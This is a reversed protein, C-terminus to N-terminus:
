KESLHEMLLDIKEDTTKETFCLLMKNGGLDYGGLIGHKLLKKNIKAAPQPCEIVFERFNNKQNLVKYGILKKIKEQAKQMQQNCQAVIRQLGSLGLASMFITARLACWAQNSCINSTAKERRIHQERTQMTLVFAGRGDKDVTKGVIRGPMYRLLEKKAAFFGLGPGGFWLPIGLPRGEGIVIDAGSKGPAAVSSLLIPDAIIIVLAGKAKAEQILDQYNNIEGYFDPLAFIVGATQENIKTKELVKLQRPETYTKLVRKYNPSIENALIIEKRGTFSTALIAAEATASAGDYMSANAIDCGTLEAIMSQFEYIVTLTGQSIEPQYPTYATYFESRGSLHNVVAPIFHDYAGAGLFSAKIPLNESINRQVEQTLELESHPKLGQITSKKLKEPVAVFLESINKVGIVSLMQQVDDSTHPVYSM